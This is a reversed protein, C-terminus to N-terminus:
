FFIIFIKLNDLIKGLRWSVFWTNQYVDLFSFFFRCNKFTCCIYNSSVQSRSEKGWVCVTQFFFYEEASARLNKVRTPAHHITRINTVNNCIYDKEYCYILCMKLTSFNPLFCRDTLKLTTAKKYYYNSLNQSLIIWIPWNIRSM